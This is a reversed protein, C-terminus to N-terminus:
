ESSICFIEKMLAEQGTFLKFIKTDGVWPKAYAKPDDVVLQMTLTNHNVRKYREVVHLEESHPDGYSDLWSKDNFGVTDVVFTNGDWRGISDGMWNPVMDKSSRAWRDLNSAM